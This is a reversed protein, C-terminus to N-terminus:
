SGTLLGRKAFSYYDSVERGVIIHDLVKVGILNCSDVISRTLKIDEESPETEGSPHNHVLIVGSASKLTAEKVIERIDVISASVSGKAKSKLITSPAQEQYRAPRHLLIGKKIDRLYPGYREAVYNLADQACRIRPAKQAPEAILRKGLELAAMIQASKAPGIGEIACIEQVSASDLSRLSGFHNYIRRGLEEANVGKRGTRLIIALLKSTPLAAAGKELLMERPREGKVWQKIPSSEKLDLFEKLSM